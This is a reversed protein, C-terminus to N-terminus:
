NYTQIKKPYWMEDYDFWLRMFVLKPLKVIKGAEPDALYIASKTIKDVVSFHGIYGKLMWSVIIVNKPTNYKILTAWDANSVEKVQLDLRRLTNVTDKNSLGDKKKYQSVDEIKKLSFPLEFYDVTMKICAPGCASDDKQKAPHIKM